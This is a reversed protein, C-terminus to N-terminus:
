IETNKHTKAKPSHGKGLTERSEVRMRAATKSDLDIEKFGQDRNVTNGNKNQKGEEPSVPLRFTPHLPPIGKWWSLNPESFIKEWPSYDQM